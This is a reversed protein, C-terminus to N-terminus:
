NFSCAIFAMWPLPQPPTPPTRILCQSKERKNRLCICQNLEEVAGFHSHSPESIKEEGVLLMGGGAPASTADRQLIFPKQCTLCSREQMASACHFVKLQVLNQSWLNGVDSALSNVRPTRCTVVSKGSESFIRILFSWNLFAWGEVVNPKKVIEEKGGCLLLKLCTPFFIFCVYPLWGM